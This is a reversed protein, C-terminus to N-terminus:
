QVAFEGSGEYLGCSAMIANVIKVSKPNVIQTSNVSKGKNSLVFGIHAIDRCTVEMSCVRFYLDLLDEVNENITNTSCM